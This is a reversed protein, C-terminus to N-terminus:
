VHPEGEAVAPLLDLDLPSSADAMELRPLGGQELDAEGLVALDPRDTHVALLVDDVSPVVGLHLPHEEAAGRDPDLLRLHRMDGVRLVRVVMDPQQPADTGADDFEPLDSKDGLVPREPDGGLLGVRDGDGAVFRACEGARLERFAPRLQDAKEGLQELTLLQGDEGGDSGVDRGVGGVKPRVLANDEPPVGGLLHAGYGGGLAVSADMPRLDDRGVTGAAVQGGALPYDEVVQPPRLGVRTAARGSELLLRDADLRDGGLWM